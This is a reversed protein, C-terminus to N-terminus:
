MSTDTCVLFGEIMAPLKLTPMSTLLEKLRQFEEACKYIWVFMKKKTRLETITNEIKSFGEVFWWYYKSLVMFRHVNPVNTPALWKLIDEVKMQDVVIGKRSIVHGLFHIRSLNAVVEQLKNEWLVTTGLSFIIRSRKDDSFIDFHQWPISLPLWASDGHWM